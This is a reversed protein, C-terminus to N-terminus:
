KGVAGRWCNQLCEKPGDWRAHSPPDSNCADEIEQNKGLLCVPCLRLHHQPLPLPLSCHGGAEHRLGVRGARPHGLHHHLSINALLVRAGVRSWHRRWKCPATPSAAWPSCSRSLSTSDRSIRPEPGPWRLCARRSGSTCAAWLSWACTVTLTYMTWFMLLRSVYPRSSRHTGWMWSSCWLVRVSGCSNEGFDDGGEDDASVGSQSDRQERRLVAHAGGARELCAVTTRRHRAGRLTGWELGRDVGARRLTDVSPLVAGGGIVSGNWGLFALLEDGRQCHDKACLDRRQRHAGEWQDTRRSGEAVNWVFTGHEVDQVALLLVGCHHCDGCHLSQIVGLAGKLNVFGVLFTIPQLVLEVRMLLRARSRMEEIFEIDEDDHSTVLPECSTDNYPM